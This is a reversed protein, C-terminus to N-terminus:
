RGAEEEEAGRLRALLQETGERFRKERATEEREGGQRELVQRARELEYEQLYTIAEELIDELVPNYAVTDDGGSERTWGDLANIAEECQRAYAEASGGEWGEERAFGSELRLECAAHDACLLRPVPGLVEVAAPNLCPERTVRFYHCRISRLEISM